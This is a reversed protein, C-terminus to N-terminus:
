EAEEILEFYNTGGEKVRRVKEPLEKLAQSVMYVSHKSGMPKGQRKMEEVIEASPLRKRAWRLITLGAKAITLNAFDERSIESQRELVFEPKASGVLQELLKAAPEFKAKRENLKQQLKALDQGLKDVEKKEQVIFEKLQRKLEDHNTNSM